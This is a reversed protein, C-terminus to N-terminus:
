VVDPTDCPLGLLAEEGTRYRSICQYGRALDIQSALNERIWDDDEVIAVKIPAVRPGSLASPKGAPPSTESTGAMLTGNKGLTQGPALVCSCAYERSRPPTPAVNSGMGSQGSHSTVSAGADRARRPMQRTCIWNWRSAHAPEPRVRWACADVLNNSANHWTTCDTEESGRNMQISAVDMTASPSACPRM